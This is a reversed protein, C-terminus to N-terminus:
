EWAASPCNNEWAVPTDGALLAPTEDFSLESTKTGNTHNNNNANM